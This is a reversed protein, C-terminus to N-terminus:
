PRRFHKLILKPEALVPIPYPELKANPSGRTKLQGSCILTPVQPKSGKPALSFDGAFFIEAPRRGTLLM